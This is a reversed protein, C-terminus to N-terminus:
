TNNSGKKKGNGNEPTNIIDQLWSPRFAKKLREIREKSVEKTKEQREVAEGGSSSYQMGKQELQIQDTM